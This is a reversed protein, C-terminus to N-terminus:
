KEELVKQKTAEDVQHIKLGAKEAFKKAYPRKGTKLVNYIDEEAVLSCEETLARSMNKFTPNKFLMIDSRIENINGLKSHKGYGRNLQDPMMSELYACLVFDKYYVIFLFSFCTKKAAPDM